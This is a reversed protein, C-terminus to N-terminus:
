SVTLNMVEVSVTAQHHGGSYIVGKLPTIDSYDRGWAV